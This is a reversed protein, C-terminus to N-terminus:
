ILGKEMTLSEPMTFTGDDNKEVLAKPLFIWKERRRGKDDVDYEGQSVAWSKERDQKLDLAVDILNSRVARAEKVSHRISAADREIERSPRDLEHDQGDDDVIIIATTM